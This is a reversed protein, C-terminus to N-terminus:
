FHMATPAMRGTQGKSSRWFDPHEFAQGQLKARHHANTLLTGYEVPPPFPNFVERTPDLGFPNTWGHQFAPPEDVKTTPETAMGSRADPEPDPAAYIRARSQTWASVAARFDELDQERAEKLHQLLQEEKAKFSERDAASRLQCSSPVSGKGAMELVQLIQRRDAAPGGASELHFLAHRMAAGDGSSLAAAAERHALSREEAVQLAHECREPDLGAVKAVEVAKRLQESTSGGVLLTQLLKGVKDKM